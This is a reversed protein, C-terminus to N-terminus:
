KTHEALIRLLDDQILRKLAELIFNTRRDTVIFVWAPIHDIREITNLIREHAIPDIDVFVGNFEPIKEEWKEWVLMKILDENSLILDIRKNLLDMNLNLGSCDLVREKKTYPKNWRYLSKNVRAAGSHAQLRHNYQSM